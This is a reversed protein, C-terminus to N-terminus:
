IGYCKGVLILMACVYCTAYLTNAYTYIYLWLHILTSLLMYPYAYRIDYCIDDFMYYDQQWLCMMVYAYANRQMIMADLFKCLHIVYCRRMKMLSYVYFYQVLYLPLMNWGYGLM